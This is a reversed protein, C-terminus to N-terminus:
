REKYHVTLLTAHRIHHELHDLIGVDVGTSLVVLVDHEGTHTKLNNSQTSHTQQNKKNNPLIYDREM